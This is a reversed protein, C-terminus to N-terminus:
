PTGARVVVDLGTGERTIRFPTSSCYCASCGDGVIEAFITVLVCTEESFCFIVEVALEDVFAAFALQKLPPVALELVFLEGVLLEVSRDCDVNDEEAFLEVADFLEAPVDVM